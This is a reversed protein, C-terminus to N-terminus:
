LTFGFLSNDFYVRRLTIINKLIKQEHPNNEM